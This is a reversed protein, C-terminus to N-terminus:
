SEPYWDQPPTKIIQMTPETNEIIRIEPEYVDLDDALTEAYSNCRPCSGDTQIGSEHNTHNHTFQPKM